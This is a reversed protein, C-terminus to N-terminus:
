HTRSWGQYSFFHSRTCQDSILTLYLLGGTLKWTYRGIGDPLHLGQNRECYAGNFFDMEDKNVVVDGTLLDETGPSAVFYAHTTSAM